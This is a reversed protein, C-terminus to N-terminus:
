FLLQQGKPNYDGQRKQCQCQYQYHENNQLHKSIILRIPSIRLEDYAILKHHGDLVFDHSWETDNELEYNHNYLIVIPKIGEKIIKKYHESIFPVKTFHYDRDLDGLRGDLTALQLTDQLLLDFPRDGSLIVTVKGDHTTENHTYNLM